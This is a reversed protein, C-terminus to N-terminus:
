STLHLSLEAVIAVIAVADVNSQLMCLARSVRCKMVSEKWLRAWGELQHRSASSFRGVAKGTVRVGRDEGVSYHGECLDCGRSAVPESLCM